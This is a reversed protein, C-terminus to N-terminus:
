DPLIEQWLTEKDQVERSFWMGIVLIGIVSFNTALDLWNGVMNRWPFAAFQCMSYILMVFIVWYFQTIGYKFFMTSFNILLAKALLVQDWWWLGPHFKNLLFLWRVRFAKDHFHVPAVWNLYAFLCLVGVTYFLIALVGFPLMSRWTEDGCIIDPAM